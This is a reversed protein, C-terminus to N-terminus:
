FYLHNTDTLASKSATSCGRINDSTLNTATAIEMRSKGCLDSISGLNAYTSRVRYTIFAKCSSSSRFDTYASNNVFESAAPSIISILFLSSITSFFIYLSVAM